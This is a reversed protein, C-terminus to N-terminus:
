TANIEAREFIPLLDNKQHGRAMLRQIFQKIKTDADHRHTCLRRFRLVQGFILGTLVGRPHSSHPPIYLYLNQSKEFITTEIKGDVISITLDMFDVTNSPETFTWTLGYWQQMDSKFEAWQQQFVAPDADVRWVGIGDDIFRLYFPLLESWKQLIKEEHIAFTITAWPPAPPTGMATGSKQHCYIDGFKFYNSRFVLPLAEVLANINCHKFRHENSGIYETVERLNPETQLNTYMSDADCTMLLENPQLVLTDLRKKLEFSDKFYSKQQRAIPVLQENVWKGLGHALSTVDSCVPRTPWAGDKMGKHIKFLAYFQGFPSAANAAMHQQIFKHAHEGISKRYDHLWAEILIELEEIGQRAEEETLIDYCETNRLHKLCAEVYQDYTVACPGLGKDTEPFILEPDNLLLELLEKQYPLLNSKARRQKFIRRVKSIFRDLRGFCWSPLDVENPKWKSKIYLKSRSQYQDYEYDDM